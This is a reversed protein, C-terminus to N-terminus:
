KAVVMGKLSNSGEITISYMYVGETARNGTADLRNWTVHHKGKEFRDNVVESIPRGLQDTILIRVNNSEESIVFPITIQEVFPNPYPQVLPQTRQYGSLAKEPYYNYQGNVLTFPIVDFYYDIDPELYVIYHTSDTDFGVVISCCGITNGISYQMGDQPGDDPLASEFSRMITIYGDANEGPSFSVTMSNDTVDAFALNTAATPVGTEGGTDGDCPGGDRIEQESFGPGNGSMTVTTNCPYCSVSDTLLPYLGCGRTLNTNNTVVIKRNPTSMSTLNSLSDVNTILPNDSITLISNTKGDISALSALGNINLLSPNNSITVGYSASRIKSLGDINTLAANNGVYLGNGVDTIGELGQLTQLVTNGSIDLGGKLDGQVNRLGRITVLSTNGSISISQNGFDTNVGVSTLAEFSDLNVLLPNEQILLAGRISTLAPLNISVLKPNNVISFGSFPCNCGGQVMTLGELGHLSQLNNNDNIIVSGNVTTLALGSLDMLMDNNYISLAFGVSHLNELGTLSSLMPLHQLTLGGTLSTLGSLGSLSKFQPNTFIELDGTISTLSTLGNLNDLKQNNYMKVKGVSQLSTLGMTELTFNDFITMAGIHKVGSLGHLNVLGSDLRITLAGTIEELNELGTLSGIGNGILEFDGNITKLGQFGTLDMDRQLRISLTGVSTLNSLDYLSTLSINNVMDFSGDVTKLSSLGQVDVLQLNSDLILRGVREVPYLGDLNTIDDGNAITLVGAVVQCGYTSPFADVEAQTTLTIDGACATSEGGCVGGALIEERTVGNGSFTYRTTESCDDTCDFYRHTLPFLGCGKTLNPNNVVTLTKWIAGMTTLRSLSDVNQLSPNNSIDVWNYPRSTDITSVSRLGDLNPLADNGKIIIGYLVMEVSSLGNIDTLSNNGEIVLGQGGISTLHELGELSTMADNNVIRIGGQVSTVNRLGHLNTLLPNNEVDIAQDGFESNSGIQTLSSLGEISALLTNGTINVMGGVTTLHSLEDLNTLKPNDNINIGRTPCACSALVTTLNELGHLNELNANGAVLLTGVSTISLGSLDTLMDNNSISIGIPVSTVGELGHLNTLQPNDTIYADESITTLHSLGQISTLSTDGSIRLNEVSTLSNLGDLNQLLPNNYINLDKVVTELSLLNASVLNPNNYIEVWGVSKVDSLGDLNTIDNGSIILTGSIDTCGHTTRFSDVDAQSLIYVTECQAQLNFSIAIVCALTLYFKLKM